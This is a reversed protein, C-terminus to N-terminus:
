LLVNKYHVGVTCNNMQKVANTSSRQLTSSKTGTTFRNEDGRLEDFRLVDLKINSTNLFSTSNFIKKTAKMNSQIMVSWARFDNATLSAKKRRMQKLAVLLLEHYLKFIIRLGRQSLVRWHSPTRPQFKDNVPPAVAKYHLLLKFFDGLSRSSM